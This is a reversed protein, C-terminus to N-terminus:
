TAIRSFKFIHLQSKLNERIVFFHPEVGSGGKVLLKRYLSSIRIEKLCQLFLLYVRFSGLLDLIFLSEIEDSDKGTDWM